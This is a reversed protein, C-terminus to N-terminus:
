SAPKRLCCHGANNRNGLDPYVQKKPFLILAPKDSEDTEQTQFPEQDMSFEATRPIWRRLKRELDDFVDDLPRGEGACSQAYSHELKADLEAGSMACMTGPEAPAALPFSIGHHEIIQRYFSDIATSVPVGLERLINEAKNKVDSESNQNSNVAM